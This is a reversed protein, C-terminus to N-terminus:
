VCICVASRGDMMRLKEQDEFSVGFSLRVIVLVMNIYFTGVPMGM